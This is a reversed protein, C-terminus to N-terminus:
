ASLAVIAFQEHLWTHLQSLTSQPDQSGELARLSYGLAQEATAKTAHQERGDATRVTADALLSLAFGLAVAPMVVHQVDLSTGPSDRHTLSRAMVQVLNTQGERDIGHAFWVHDAETGEGRLRPDDARPHKSQLKLELLRLLCSVYDMARHTRDPGLEHQNAGVYCSGYRAHGEFERSVVYVPYAALVGKGRMSRLVSAAEPNNTDVWAITPTEVNDVQWNLPVPVVHGPRLLQDSVDRSADRRMQEKEFLTDFARFVFQKLQNPSVRLEPKPHRSLAVMRAIVAVIGYPSEHSREDMRADNGFTERLAVARDLKGELEQISIKLNALKGARSRERSLHGATSAAALDTQQLLAEQLNKIARETTELAQDIAVYVETFTQPCAGGGFVLEAQAPKRAAWHELMWAEADQWQGTFQFPILLQRLEALQGLQRRPPSFEWGNEIAVDEQRRIARDLWFELDSVTRITVEGNPRWITDYNRSCYWRVMWHEVEAVNAADMQFGSPAFLISRLVASAMRLLERLEENGAAYEITERRGAEVEVQRFQDMRALFKFLWSLGMVMATPTNDKLTVYAMLHELRDTMERIENDSVNHDLHNVLLGKLLGQTGARGGLHEYMLKFASTNRDRGHDDFPSRWMTEPSCPQAGHNPTVGISPLFTLHGKKNRHGEEWWSRALDNPIGEMNILFEVRDISFLFVHVLHALAMAFLEDLHPAAHTIISHITKATIRLATM